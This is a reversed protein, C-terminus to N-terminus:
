FAMLTVMRGVACTIDRAYDLDIVQDSQRHYNPNPDAAPEAAYNAFFDESALM